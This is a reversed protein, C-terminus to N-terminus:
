FPGHPNGAAKMLYPCIKSALCWRHFSLKGICEIFFFCNWFPPFFIHGKSHDSKGNELYPARFKFFTRFDASHASEASSQAKISGLRNIRDFLSTTM